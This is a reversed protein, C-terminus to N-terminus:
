DADGCMPLDVTVVPAGTPVLFQKWMSCAPAAATPALIYGDFKEAAANQVHKLQDTPNFNADFM